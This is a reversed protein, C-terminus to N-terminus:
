NFGVLYKRRLYSLFAEPDLSTGIAQKILEKPPYIAGWRHIKEKLWERIGEFNQADLYREVNMADAIQVSLITGITYTPFYGIAGLSWHIDQLVGERDTKPVIGLYREMKENWIDPLEKLDGGELMYLEIEFRLLIHLNYTVEDAEVRIPSPRVTNFYKYIEEDEVPFLYKSVIPAILSAFQLSRGVMNEWFRSQSEHVGLSVGRQLPTMHLDRDIQFEYLAHGFEHITALLSRKFDKEHYWTTIRVDYLGIGETFPHASVDLRMYNSDFGLISLVEKNLAEMGRRDYPKDELPHTGTEIRRLISPLEKRLPEFMQKADRTTFGEEYLDLLADYPHKEYGLYEAIKLSLEVIKELYPLFLSFNSREKAEKWVSRAKSTVKEMEEVISPPVREYYKMDRELVRIIGREKPSSTSNKAERLADRFEKSLFLRQKESSLIALVEGREDVSRPPMYTEMDWSLLASAYNLAYLKRYLKLLHEM